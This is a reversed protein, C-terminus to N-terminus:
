VSLTKLFKGIKKNEEIAQAPSLVTNGNADTTIIPSFYGPNKILMEWAKKDDQRCMNLYNRMMKEADIAFNHEKLPAAYAEIIAKQEAEKELIDDLVQQARQRALTARHTLEENEELNLFDLYDLVLNLWFPQNDGYISQARKIAEPITMKHVDRVSLLYSIVKGTETRVSNYDMSDPSFQTIDITIAPANTLVARQEWMKKYANYLLTKANM